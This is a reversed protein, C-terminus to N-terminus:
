ITPLMEPFDSEEQHDQPGAREQLAKEPTSFSRVFGEVALPSLLCHTRAQELGEKILAADQKSPELPPGQRAGFRRPPFDKAWPTPRSSAM